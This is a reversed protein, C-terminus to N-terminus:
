KKKLINKFYPLYENKIVMSWLYKEQIHKYADKIMSDIIKPEYKKITIVESLKAILSEPTNNTYLFGTKYNLIKNLGGTKNAIPLTGFIQSIFDELGCPEFFSPLVIFDGIANTLRALKKNYGNLFVVKGKLGKTMELIENEISVEGQGAIIFNVNEYNNVIAPIAKLLVSIGKQGTVRGHYVIFIQDKIETNFDLTGYISVGEYCDNTLINKVFYEKCNIKGHLDLTEPNFAFPLCSIETDRPDYREFDIGNTIGKIELNMSNFIKSLGETEQEFLPNTIEKAYEESVTTFFAGSNAALLFPEVNQKNLAASLVNENFGTYWAAEGVSTFSHHYAPGANHITVVSKATNLKESTKAFTPILATSADQCHIIDPINKSDIYDSYKCVAKAFLSDMFLGDIHGNGKIFSPNEKHENETYTYVGEKSSFSNHNIFVINFNGIVCKGSSYSVIETKGCHEIKVDSIIDKQFDKVLDFSSCKYIPIFLTVNENIKAFENCLSFTVNKVGGAEAIGACEMSVIWLNM